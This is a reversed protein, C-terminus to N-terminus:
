LRKWQRRLGNVVVDRIGAVPEALGADRRDLRIEARAEQGLEGQPPGGLAEETRGVFRTRGVEGIPILFEDGSAREALRQGVDNAV